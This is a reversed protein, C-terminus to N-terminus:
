KGSAQLNIYSALEEPQGMLAMIQQNIEMMTKGEPLSASVTLESLGSVFNTIAAALEESVPAQQLQMAVTQQFQEHSMGQAELFSDIVAKLEGEDAISMNISRPELQTMAAMMKSQQQLQQELTLEAGQAENQMKSIAMSAEMLPTSNALGLNFRVDAVQNAIVNLAFDSSGTDKDYDLSSNVDYSASALKNNANEPLQALFDDSFRFSKMVFGTHPPVADVEYGTVEINDITAIMEDGTYSQVKIGSLQMSSAFVNASIDNYTIDVGSQASLASIQQDVVKKVEQTAAYNAYFAGGVAAAVVAAIILKKM